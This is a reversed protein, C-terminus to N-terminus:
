VEANEGTELTNVTDEVFSDLVPGFRGEKTLNAVVKLVVDVIVWHILYTACEFFQYELTRAM